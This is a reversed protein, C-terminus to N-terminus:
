KQIKWWGRCEVEENSYCLEGQSYNNVIMDKVDEILIEPVETIKIDEDEDFFEFNVNHCCIREIM